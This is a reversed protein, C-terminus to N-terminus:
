RSYRVPSWFLCEFNNDINWGRGTSTKAYANRCNPTKHLFKNLMFIHRSSTNNLSNSIYNILEISTNSNIKLTNQIQNSPVTSWIQFYKMRINRNNKCLLRDTLKLGYIIRLRIQKQIRKYVSVDTGVECVNFMAVLVYRQLCNTLFTYICNDTYHLIAIKPTWLSLSTLTTLLFAHTPAM